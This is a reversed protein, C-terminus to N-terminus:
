APMSRCSLFRTSRNKASPWMRHKTQVAVRAQPTFRGACATTMFTGLFIANCRVGYLIGFLKTTARGCLACLCCAACRVVFRLMMFVVTTMQPIRVCLTSCCCFCVISFTQKGNKASLQAAVRGTHAPRLALYPFVKTKNPKLTGIDVIRLFACHHVQTDQVHHLDKATRSSRLVVLESVTSDDRQMLFESM